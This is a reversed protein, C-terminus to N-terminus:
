FRLTVTENIGCGVTLKQGEKHSRSFADAKIPMSSSYNSIRRNADGASEGDISRAYQYKDIAALVALRQDYSDGCNRSMKGYIDGILIYPKGWGSRLQAAKNANGRAAGYQGLKANQIQAIQYYYVAKKEDDTSKAIADEYGQVAGAFDDNNYAEQAAYAPNNARRDEEYQEVRESRVLDYRAQVEMVFADSEPCGQNKAKAVVYLLMKLDDQNEEFTPLLAKKFYECDFIQDEYESVSSVLNAKADEYYQAYDGGAAVNKDALAVGKEYLSRVREADIQEKGFYYSLLQGLPPLVIYETKDGGKEMAQELVDIAEISYGNVYFMDYGKRGLLYAEGDPYCGMEEDYLAVLLDGYEKKKAADTEKGALARYFLRGDRYHTARKGDAAPAITYATKWNKFANDFEGKPLAAVEDATKNKVFNRYSVHADTAKTEQASGVWNACQATAPTAAACLILLLFLNRFLTQM